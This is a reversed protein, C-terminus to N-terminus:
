KLCVKHHATLVATIEIEQGQVYTAQVNKPMPGGLANLPYDYDNGGSKGCTNSNRNMCHPCTEVQPTSSTGGSWRGDEKAVWNRSRPSKVYGHSHVEFPLFLSLFLSTKLYLM